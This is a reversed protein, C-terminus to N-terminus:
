SSMTFNIGLRSINQLIIILGYNLDDMLLFSFVRLIIANVFVGNVKLTKCVKLFQMMHSTLDKSKSDRFQYASIFSIM